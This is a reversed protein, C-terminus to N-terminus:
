MRWAWPTDGQNLYYLLILEPAAGAAIRWSCGRTHVRALHRDRARAFDSFRFYRCAELSLCRVAAAGHPPRERTEANM